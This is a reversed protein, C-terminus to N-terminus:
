TTRVLGARVLGARVSLAKAWPRAYRRAGRIRVSIVLRDSSTTNPYEDEGAGTVSLTIELVRAKAVVRV